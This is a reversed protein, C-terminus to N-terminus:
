SRCSRALALFSYGNENNKRDMAKSQILAARFDKQQMYHWALMEPLVHNDPDRQIRKILAANLAEKKERSPDLYISTNLANQVDQMYAENRVILDLYENIMSQIDGSQYYLEGLEFEFGYFEGTLKKGRQLCEIAFSLENRRQFNNALALIDATRPPLDRIANRYIEEGKREEGTITLLYGFEVAYLPDSPMKRYEKRALKEAEGPRGASIYGGILGLFVEKEPRKRYVETYLEISKEYAGERFFQAALEKKVNIDDQAQAFSALLLPFMFLFHRGDAAM